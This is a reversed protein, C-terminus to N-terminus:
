KRSLNQCNLKSKCRGFRSQTFKLHSKYHFQDRWLSIIACSLIESWFKKPFYRTSFLNVNDSPCIESSMRTKCHKLKLCTENKITPFTQLFQLMPFICSYFRSIWSWNSVVRIQSESIRSKQNKSLIRRTVYKLCFVLLYDQILLHRTELQILGM